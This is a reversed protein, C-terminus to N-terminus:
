PALPLPVAVDDGQPTQAGEYPTELIGNAGASLVWRRSAGTNVIYPQLWPDTTRLTIGRVALERDLSEPIGGFWQSRKDGSPFKGRGILVDHAGTRMPSRDFAAAIRRADDYARVVRQRSVTAGILFPLLLLVFVTSLAITLQAASVVRRTTEVADAAAPVAATVFSGSDRM